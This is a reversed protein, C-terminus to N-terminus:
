GGGSVPVYDLFSPLGEEEDWLDFGMQDAAYECAAILMEYFEEETVREGDHSAFWGKVWGVFAEVKDRLPVTWPLVVDTTPRPFLADIVQNITPLGIQFPWLWVVQASAGAVLQIEDDYPVPM